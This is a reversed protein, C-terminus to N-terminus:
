RATIHGEHTCTLLRLLLLYQAAGTGTAMGVYVFSIVTFSFGCLSNLGHYFLPRKHLTRYFLAHGVNQLRRRYINVSDDSNPLLRTDGYKM